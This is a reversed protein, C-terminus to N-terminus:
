FLRVQATFDDLREKAKDYYEKDIEYGWADYGLDYCAVLSSGSGVHTDLIKYGPKAYNTLVWKYLDVPKQTPHFRKEKNKMDGQLMGNWLYRYVRAVGLGKSM